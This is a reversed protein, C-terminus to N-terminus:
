DPSADTDVLWQVAGDHTEVITAALGIPTQSNNQAATVANKKDKGAALIMVCAAGQLARLSLSIRDRPPKPSDRVPIVLDNSPTTSTHEPFISLTHGDRGVGLWVLDFRPLGNEIKPLTALQNTYNKAANEASQDSLPRLKKTPLKGIIEHIAYWNSYPGNLTGIREDGMVITVKSWDIDKEHNASIIGYALLPTSGGALVWVASGYVEIADNLIDITQKAAAKALLTPDDFVRIDSM